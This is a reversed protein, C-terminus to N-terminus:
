KGQTDKGTSEKDLRAQAAKLRDLPTGDAGEAEDEKGYQVGDAM